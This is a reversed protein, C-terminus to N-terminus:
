SFYRVKQDAPVPNDLDTNEEPQDETIIAEGDDNNIIKFLDHVM